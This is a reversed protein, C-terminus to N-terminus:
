EERGRARFSDALKQLDNLAVDPVLGGDRRRQIWEELAVACWETDHQVFDRILTVLAHTMAGANIDDIADMVVSEARDDYRSM